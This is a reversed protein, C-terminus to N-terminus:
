AQDPCLVHNKILAHDEKWKMWKSFVVDTNAALSTTTYNWDIIGDIEYRVHCVHSNDHIISESPTCFTWFIRRPLLISRFSSLHIIILLFLYQGRCTSIEKEHFFISSQIKGYFSSCGLRIDSYKIPPANGTSLPTCLPHM